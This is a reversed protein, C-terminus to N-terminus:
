EDFYPNHRYETDVRDLLRAARDLQHRLEDASRAGASGAFRRRALDSPVFENLLILCWKLGFWPYVIRARAELGRLDSFGKLVGAAFTRRQNASMEMAPHHLFDVITKAPDDWGFYEFDVFMLRGHEDRLANHFGFDSPSLTRQDLPLTADRRLGHIRAQEVTWAELRSLFPDVRVSLFRRLEGAGPAADSLARLRSLRSCLNGAIADLSFCAESAPAAAAAGSRGAVMRLDTLLDTAQRIDDDGPLFEFVACRAGADMAIPAPVTAIGCSRLLQLARFETGLRDRPDDPVTFYQKAV